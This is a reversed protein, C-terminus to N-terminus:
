SFVFWIFAKLYGGSLYKGHLSIKFPDAYRDTRCFCYTLLPGANSSKLIIAPRRIRRAVCHLPLANGTQGGHNGPTFLKWRKEFSRSSYSLVDKRFSWCRWQKTGCSNIPSVHRGVGLHLPVTGITNDFCHLLTRLEALLHFACTSIIFTANSRSM